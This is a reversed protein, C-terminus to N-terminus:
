KINLYYNFKQKEWLILQIFIVYLLRLDFVGKSLLYYPLYFGLSLEKLISYGVARIKMGMTYKIPALFAKCTYLEVIQAILFLGLGTWPKMLAIILFMMRGLPYSLFFKLFPTKIGREQSYLLVNATGRMEYKMKTFIGSIAQPSDHVGRLEPLFIFNWGKRHAEIQFMTDEGFSEYFGEPFHADEFVEKRIATIALSLTTFNRLNFTRRSTKKFVVDRRIDRVNNWDNLETSRYSGCIGGIKPHKILTKQIINLSEPNLLYLHADLFFIVDGYCNRIGIQRSRSSWSRKKLQIVNIGLSRVMSVSKDTSKDDVVVIQLDSKPFHQALICKLTKTIKKEENHMSILVSIKM